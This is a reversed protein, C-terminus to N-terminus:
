GKFFGVTLLGDSIKFLLVPFAEFDDVAEQIGCCAIQLSNSSPNKCNTLTTMSALWFKIM